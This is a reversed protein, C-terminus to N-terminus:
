GDARMLEAIARGIRHRRRRWGAPRCDYRGMNEALDTPIALLSRAPHHPRHETLEDLIALYEYDEIGDRIMALRVSPGNDQYYWLGDGVGAGGPHDPVNHHANACWYLTGPVQYRWNM